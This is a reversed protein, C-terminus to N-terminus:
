RAASTPDPRDRGFPALGLAGLPAEFEADLIRRALAEAEAGSERDADLTPVTERVFAHLVRTGAGLEAPKRLDVAQAAILAEIAVLRALLELQEELKRVALPAHPAHDEVFDSIALADLCAPSAKLRIEALLAGAPKLMPVLGASAGGVRSLYRPLGSHAASVLKTLRAMSAHAFQALALALSDSALALAALHFNGTSLILDHETLVAPNDAAANLETETIAVAHALAALAAGTIQPLCRFSLADQIARAAGPTELSSGALLARYLVAAAEQGPAPRLASTRADFTGLNAAYGECSLAAAAAAALMLRCTGDLVLAAHGVTLANANILGLADKAGFEVPALGARRLAEAGALREGGLEAEGLGVMVLGIHAMPALDAAGISGRSPVVPTVARNLLEVLMALVAPSVGSTGRAIGNARALLAARVVGAPLPPGVAVARGRILQAQFTPIEEPRLRHGLNGGLGTNLGYAPIDDRLYREVLARGADLRPWVAEAIAVPRGARAVQAVREITLGTGDLILEAM